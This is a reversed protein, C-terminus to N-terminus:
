RPLRVQALEFQPYKGRTLTVSDSPSPARPVPSESRPGVARSPGPTTGLVCNKLIGVCTIFSNLRQFRSTQLAAPDQSRQISRSLQVHTDASLSAVPQTHRRPRATGVASLSGALQLSSPTKVWSFSFPSSLLKNEQSVTHPWRTVRPPKTESHRLKCQQRGTEEKGERKGGRKGERRGKGKGGKEEGEKGERGEM